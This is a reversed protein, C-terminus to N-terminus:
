EAKIKVTEALTELPIGQHTRIANQVAHLGILACQLRRPGIPIGLLACIDEQKMAVATETQMGELRESLLSM